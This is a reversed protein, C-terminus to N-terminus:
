RASHLAFIVDFVHYPKEFNPNEIAYFVSPTSLFCGSNSKQAQEALFLITKQSYWYQNFDGNEKNKILFGTAKKQM